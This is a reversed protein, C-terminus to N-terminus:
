GGIHVHTAAIDKQIQTILAEVSDFKQEGRLHQIFELRVEEGYLDGQFGLFHAEISLTTAGNFTPRLGINTAAPWSKGQWYARCAYVGRQPLIQEDWYELNATPIGITRGRGAGHTIEGQICYLRGLLGAATHVDGDQLLKRIRTSSIPEGGDFLAKVTHLEYNLENGLESLRHIDGERKRGLAFDHGVLLTKLNLRKKLTKMFNEATTAAFEPTFPLTIVADVGLKEILRNRETVTTLYLPGEVKRLVKAPHPFFSLVVAPENNEHALTTLQEIASQHGRHVGDFSGITLWTNNLVVDDLNNYQVM